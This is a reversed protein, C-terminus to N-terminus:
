PRVPRLRSVLPQCWWLLSIGIHSLCGFGYAIVLHIDSTHDFNCSANFFDLIPDLDGYTNLPIYLWKSTLSMSGKDTKAGQGHTTCTCTHCFDWFLPYFACWKWINVFDVNPTMTVFPFNWVTPLGAHLTNNFKSWSFFPINSPGGYTPSSIANAQLQKMRAYSTAKTDYCGSTQPNGPVLDGSCCCFHSIFFRWTCVFTVTLLNGENSRWQCIPWAFLRCYFPLWKTLLHLFM